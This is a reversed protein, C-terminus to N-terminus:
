GPSMKNIRLNSWHVKRTLIPNTLNRYLEKSAWFLLVTMNELETEKTRESELSSKGKNHKQPKCVASSKRQRGYCLCSAKPERRRSPASRQLNNLEAQQAPGFRKYLMWPSDAMNPRLFSPEQLPLAQEAHLTHVKGLHLPFGGAM